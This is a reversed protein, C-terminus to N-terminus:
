YLFPLTVTWTYIGSSCRTKGQV